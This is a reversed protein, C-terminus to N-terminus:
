NSYALGGMGSSIRLVNYNVAYVTVNAPNLSTIDHLNLHLNVSDLRSFNATGSPQHDEPKLAFSYVYVGSMPKGSHHKWPQVKNFYVDDRETFRDNGNFQLKANRLMSRGNAGLYNFHDHEVQSVERQCVWVLEKVPHNFDLSVINSNNTLTSSRSMQVQDILYNHSEQAFKRREETDLYVYDAWLSIHPQLNTEHCNVSDDSVLLSNCNNFEFELTVEHYQLAILPLAVGYNRCFWFQLPLYCVNVDNCKNMEHNPTSMMELMERHDEDATLENWLLLWEGTQKDIQQGGIQIEVSKVLNHTTYKAWSVGKQTLEPYEVRLWLNTILDGNRSLTCKSKRGFSPEGDFAQQLSEMSFNTHRYFVSKFFTIQPDGTLYVDQAGYAVLQILGGGM